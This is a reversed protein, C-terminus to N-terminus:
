MIGDSVARLDDRPETVRRSNWLAVANVRPRLKARGFTVSRRIERATARPFYASSYFSIRNDSEKWPRAVVRVYDDNGQVRM